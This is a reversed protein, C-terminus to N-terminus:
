GVWATRLAAYSPKPTNDGRVAGFHQELDELVKTGLNTDDRLDYWYYGGAWSQSRFASVEAGALNAQEAESVCAFLAGTVCTPAGAETIWVTRASDGAATMVSRISTPTQAIQSWASCGDYALMQAATAGKWFRYPHVSVGTFYGRAGAQYMAQLFNVPNTATTTVGGDATGSCDGDDYAGQGALAGALVTMTRDAAKAGKWAAQVLRTYAVPDPGSRWFFATNPENWVEIGAPLVKPVSPNAKWFTGNSGYRAAVQRVFNGYDAPDKPPYWGALPTSLTLGTAWLPAQDIILLPKQGAMAANRVFTDSESWAYVGKVPEAQAWSVDTRVSRSGGQAALAFYAPNDAQMHISYGFVPTSAAHAGPMLLLPAAPLLAAATRLIRRRVSM